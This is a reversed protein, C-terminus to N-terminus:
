DVWFVSCMFFNLSHREIILIFTQTITSPRSVPYAPLLGGPGMIYQNPLLPPVGQSLNPPAKGTLVVTKLIMQRWMCCSWYSAVTAATEPVHTGTSSLVATTRPASLNSTATAGNSGLGLATSAAMTAASHLGSTGTIGGVTSSMSNGLSPMNALHSISSSSNSSSNHVLHLSANTPQSSTYSSSPPALSSVNSSDVSTYQLCFLFLILYKDVWPKKKLSRGGRESLVYHSFHNTKGQHKFWQIARLILKFLTVKGRKPKSKLQSSTLIILASITYNQRINMWWSWM